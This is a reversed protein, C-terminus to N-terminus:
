EDGKLMNYIKKICYPYIYVVRVNIHSECIDYMHSWCM